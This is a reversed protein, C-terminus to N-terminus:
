IPRCYRLDLNRVPRQANQELIAARHSLRTSRDLRGRRLSRASRVGTATARRERRLWKAIRRLWGGPRPLAGVRGYGTRLERYARMFERGAAQRRPHKKTLLRVGNAILRRADNRQPRCVDDARRVFEARGISSAEAVLSLALGAILTAVVAGVRM